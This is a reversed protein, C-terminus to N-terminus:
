KPPGNGGVAAGGGGGGPAAALNSAAAGGGRLYRESGGSCGQKPKSVPVGRLAANQDVDLHELRMRAVARPLTGSFRDEAGTSQM